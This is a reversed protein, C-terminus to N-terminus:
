FRGELARKIRERTVDDYRAIAMGIDTHGAMKTVVDDPVGAARWLTIRLKRLAYLDTRPFGGRDCAAHWWRLTTRRHTSTQFWINPFLPDMGWDYLAKGLEDSILVMRDEGAETKSEQVRVWWSDQSYVIRGKHFTSAEVPRMASECLLWWFLAKEPDAESGIAARAETLTLRRKEAPKASKPLRIADTVPNREIWGLEEAYKLAIRLVNRHIQITRGGIKEDGLARVYRAVMPTDIHRIDKVKEFYAAARELAYDYQIVTDEDLGKWREKKCVGVLESFTHPDSPKRGQKALYAKAAQQVALQTKRSISKQHKKGEADTLTLVIKWRGNAM